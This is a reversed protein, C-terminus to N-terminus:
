LGVMQRLNCNIVGIRDPLVRGSYSTEPNGGSRKSPGETSEKREQRQPKPSKVKM